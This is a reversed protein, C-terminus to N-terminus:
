GITKGTNQECPVLVSLFRRALSSFTSVLNWQMFQTYCCKQPQLRSQPRSMGNYSKSDRLIHVQRDTQTVVFNSSLCLKFNSPPVCLLWGCRIWAIVSTACSRVEHWLHALRATSPPLAGGVRDFEEDDREWWEREVGEHQKWGVLLFQQWTCAVHQVQWQAADGVWSGHVLPRCPALSLCSWFITKLKMTRSGLLEWQLQWALAWKGLVPQLCPFLHIFIVSYVLCPLLM